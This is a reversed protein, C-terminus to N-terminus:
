AEGMTHNQIFYELQSRQYRTLKKFQVGQLRMTVSSLPTENVMKSDWIPKFRVERLSFDKDALFMDLYSEGNSEASGIYRFALGSM